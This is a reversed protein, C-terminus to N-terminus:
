SRPPARSSLTRSTADDPTPNELVREDSLGPSPAVFLPTASPLVAPSVLLLVAAAVGDSDDNDDFVPLAEAELPVFPSGAAALALLLLAFACSRRAASNV